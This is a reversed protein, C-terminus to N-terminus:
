RRWDREGNLAIKMVITNSELRKFERRVIPDFV